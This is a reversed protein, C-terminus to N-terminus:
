AVTLDGVFAWRSLASEGDASSAAGAGAAAVAAAAAPLVSGDGGRVHSRRAGRGAEVVRAIGDLMPRALRTMLEESRKADQFQPSANAEALFVRPGSGRPDASFLVDFGFLQMAGVRTGAGM